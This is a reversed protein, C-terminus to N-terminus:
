PASAAPPRPSRATSSSCSGCPDTPLKLEDLTEFRKWAKVKADTLHVLGPKVHAEMHEIAKKLVAPAVFRFVLAHAAGEVVHGLLGRDRRDDPTPPVTARDARVDIEFRRTQPKADLSRTRRRADVPLHWSYVGDRELLVVADEDPPVDVELQVTGKAPPAGLDRSRRPTLDVSEVLNLDSDRLAAVLADKGASRALDAPDPLGRTPLTQQADYTPPTTVRVTGGAFTPSM